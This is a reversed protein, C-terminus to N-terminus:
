ERRICPVKFYQSKNRNEYQGDPYVVYANNFRHFISLVLMMLPQYMLLPLETRSPYTIAGFEAVLWIRFRQGVYNISM